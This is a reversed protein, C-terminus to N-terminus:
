AAFRANLMFLLKRWFPLRVRKRINRWDRAQLQELIKGYYAAMLRAPQMTNPACRLMQQEAARYHAQARTALDRCLLPLQPQELAALTPPLVHLLLLDRPLYLRGRIADEHLDRLINTLQLARGLHHAVLMAAPGADGFIRVSIRGVASAVRDCYLELVVREPALMPEAAADMAMGDIIAQFDQEVLGYLPIADRLMITVEDEAIGEHFLQRIRNRWLTLAAQREAVTPLDDAADDVHRCFAYLAHMAQRKAPPLSAMGAAFSSKASLAAPTPNKM